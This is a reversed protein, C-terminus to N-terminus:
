QINFSFLSGMKAYEEHRVDTLNEWGIWMWLKRLSVGSIRCIAAGVGVGTTEWRAMLYDNPINCTYLLRSKLAVLVNLLFARWWHNIDGENFDDNWAIRARWEALYATRGGRYHLDGSETHIPFLSTGVFKVASTSGEALFFKEELRDYVLACALVAEVCDNTFCCWRVSSPSSFFFIWLATAFPSIYPADWTVVVSLESRGKQLLRRNNSTRYIGSRKKSM